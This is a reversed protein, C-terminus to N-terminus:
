FALRMNLSATQGVFDSRADVDYRATIEARESARVSVGLGARGIWPSLDLGQTRFSAGGGVYSAAISNKNNLLDYGVGVNALLAARETLRHQLRGEVMTILQESTAANVKLNLAAAGKETYSDNRIWFYDARIAPIFSTKENLSFSRGIGAGVHATTSDFDSKAVRNLGGFNIRRHGDNKNIGFDAQWNIEIDPQSALNFSGYGIMQFADIDARNERASSKGDVNSNMYSFAVGVRHTDNLEADAGVIFGFTNAQYGSVGNRNGQNANSAIPKMWFYKDGLFQDGSARGMNTEQRAQIIRNTNRMGNTAVQDISASILPLTQAVANSVEGETELKGLADVVNVMDGTPTGSIVSDLVTAAGAGQGFGENRVSSRVTRDLLTLLDIANGRVLADFKFLASNDKIVFTNEDVNHGGTGIVTFIKDNVKLTNLSSVNVFLNTGRAFTAQGSIALRSFTGTSTVSLALTAGAEQMYDGNIMTLLPAAILTGSNHLNANTEISDTAYDGLTLQGTSAIEVQNVTMSGEQTFTGNVVVASDESGSIFGTVRGSSGNLNLLSDGLSVNGDLLGTNTIGNTITGSNSIAYAGDAARITGDNTMTTITSGNGNVIANGSENSIMGTAHNTLTGINGNNNIASDNADDNSITGHNIISGIESVSYRNWIASTGTYSTGAGTISGHNTITGITDANNIAVGDENTIIGGTNNTITNISGMNNIAAGYSSLVTILNSNVIDGISTHNLIANGGATITGTNTIQSIEGDHSWIGVNYNDITGANNIIVGTSTGADIAVGDMDPNISGSATIEVTENSAPTCISTESTSITTTGGGGCGGTAWAQNALMPMAAVVASALLAQRSLKATYGSYTLAQQCLHNIKRM